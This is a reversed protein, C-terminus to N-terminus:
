VEFQSKADFFEDEDEVQKVALNKETFFGASSSKESPYGNVSDLLRLFADRHICRMKEDESFM